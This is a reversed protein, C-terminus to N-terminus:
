RRENKEIFKLAKVYVNKVGNNKETKIINQVTSMLKKRAKENYKMIESLAYAACWKIVTSDEKTNKILNPIAKEVKTPFKEAINGITEPIGWKVRSAEYNIYDILVGIYPLFIEPQDKSVNKMVDVITGKEVDSGTKLVDFLEAILKKDNLISKTLFVVLEKPKKNWNKITNKVDM